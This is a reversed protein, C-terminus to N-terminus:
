DDKRWSECQVVPVAAHDGKVPALDPADKASPAGTEKRVPGIRALLQGTLEGLRVWNHM